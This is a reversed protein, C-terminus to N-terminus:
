RGGLDRTICTGDVTPAAAPYAIAAPHRIAEEDDIVDEVGDVWVVTQKSYARREFKVPTGPRFTVEPHHRKFIGLLNSDQESVM